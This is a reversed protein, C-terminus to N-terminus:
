ATFLACLKLYAQSAKEVIAPPLDPIDGDGRWGISILYDRIIQKDYSPPSSGPQYQDAPWFRSSDPTLVEDILILEGAADLGFEFKTDAIMIGKALAWESARRYIDLTVAELRRTLPEGVRKGMDTLTINMDHGQDAKTAPTFIPQPLRDAMRLGKPLPHGCVAGTAQYDVWGSGILYGRAVCEVPLPTTKKVVMSRGKLLEAYPQLVAPYDSVDATIFHTPAVEKLFEFWFLSMRTLVEGKRPIGQNLIRDFASVRDTAVMLLCDGLDYMYRVKGQRLLPVGPLDIQTIPTM